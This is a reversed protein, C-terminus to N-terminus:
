KQMLMTGRRWSSFAYWNLGAIIHTGMIPGIILGCNSAVTWGFIVWIRERSNFLDETSGSAVTYPIASLLGATVRGVIVAAIHPVVGVIVCCICSLASSIIYLKKRGFTESWPSLVISGVVQGLLFSSKDAQLSQYGIVPRCHKCQSSAFPQCLRVWTTNM